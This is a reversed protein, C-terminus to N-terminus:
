STRDSRTSETRDMAETEDGAGRRVPAHYGLSSSHRIQRDRYYDPDAFKEQFVREWRANEVCEGCVGCHCRRVKRRVPASAAPSLACQDRPVRPKRKCGPDLLQSLTRADTLEM